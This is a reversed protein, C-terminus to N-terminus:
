GERDMWSCARRVGRRGAGASSTSPRSSRCIPACRRSVSSSCRMRASASSRPRLRRRTRPTSTGTARTPPSTRSEIRVQRARGGLVQPGLRATGSLRRRRRRRARSLRPDVSAARRVERHRGGRRADRQAPPRAARRAHRPGVPRSGQRAHLHRRARGGSEEAAYGQRRRWRTTPRKRVMAWVVVGLLRLAEELPHFQALLDPEIGASTKYGRWLSNRFSEIVHDTAVGVHTVGRNLLGLVSGVVGRVAAM